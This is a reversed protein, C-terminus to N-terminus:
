GNTQRKGKILPKQRLADPQQAFTFTITMNLMLPHTFLFIHNINVDGKLITINCFIAAVVCQICLFLFRRPLSPNPTAEELGSVSWVVHANKLHVMLPRTVNLQLRGKKENHPGKFDSKLDNLEMEWECLAQTSAM